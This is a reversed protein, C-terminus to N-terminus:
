HNYHVMNGREISELYTNLDGTLFDVSGKFPCKQCILIATFQRYKHLYWEGGGGEGAGEM